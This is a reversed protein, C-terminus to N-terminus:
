PSSNRLINGLFLSLAFHIDDIDDADIAMEDPETTFVDRSHDVVMSLLNKRLGGGDQGAEGIFTVLLPGQGQISPFVLPIIKKLKRRGDL